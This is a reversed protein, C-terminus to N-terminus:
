HQSARLATGAAPRSTAAMGYTRPSPAHHPTPVLDWRPSWEPRIDEAPRRRPDVAPALLAPLGSWLGWGGAGSTVARRPRGGPARQGGIQAGLGWSALASAAARCAGLFPGWSAGVSIESTLSPLSPPLGLAGPPHPADALGPPLLGDTLGLSCGPGDSGLASARVGPLPSPLCGAPRSSPQQPSQLRAAERSPEEARGNTAPPAPAPGDRLSQAAKREPGNREQSLM